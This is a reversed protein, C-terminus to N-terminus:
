FPGGTVRITCVGPRAPIRFLAELFHPNRLAGRRKSRVISAADAGSIGLLTHLILASVLGSRNKGQWCTVLVQGGAKILDASKMAARIAVRLQERSPQREFSDDNPAYITEVGEYPIRHRYLLAEFGYGQPFVHPPQFEEACLVVANFRANKLTPGIPPRSGQWLGPYIPTADLRM